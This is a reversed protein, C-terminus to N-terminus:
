RYAEEANHDACQLLSLLVPLGNSVVEGLVGRLFLMMGCMGKGVGSDKVM